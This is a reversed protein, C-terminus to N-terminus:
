SQELVAAVVNRHMSVTGNLLDTTVWFHQLFAIAHFTRNATPTM